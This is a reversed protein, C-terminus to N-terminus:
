PKDGQPEIALKTALRMRWAECIQEVTDRKFDIFPHDTNDQMEGNDLYPSHTTKVCVFYRLGQNEKELEAVRLKLEALTKDYDDIMEQFMDRRTM